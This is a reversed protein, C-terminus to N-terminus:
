MSVNTPNIVKNYKRCLHPVSTLYCNKRINMHKRQKKMISYKIDYKWVLYNISLQDRRSFHQIEKWWNDMLNKIESDKNNRIFFGTEFLGNNEPYNNNKYTQIQKNVLQTYDKKNNIIEVAEQYVCNRKYHKFFVISCNHNILHEKIMKKGNTFKPSFRCDMWILYDYNKLVDHGCIKIFRASRTCDNVDIKKIKIVKFNDVSIDKDTFLYYDINSDIFINKIYEKAIDGGICVTYFATKYEM